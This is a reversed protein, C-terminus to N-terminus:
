SREGDDGRPGAGPSFLVKTARGERQLRVGDQFRSLDFRHSVLPRVQVAGSVLLEIAEALEVPTTSYSATLCLERRWFTGLDIPLHTADSGEAFLTVRGGDRLAGLTTHLIPGSVATLIAGDMGQGRTLGLLASTLDAVSANMTIGIGLARAMELREERLDLCIPVADRLGVAQAVLLGMSGAGVVAIRDGAQVDSRKVARLACALPEMFVGVEDPLSDPLRFTTQEVQAAPIRVLEAFGGPDINSAKFQPCMPENGHRCHRCRGCPVHHAVAVRDGPAFRRVGEGVAAVVGVLEHGLPVPGNSGDEGFIKSLDTGCLGCARMELLVEGSGISPVPLEVLEVRGTGQLRVAKM